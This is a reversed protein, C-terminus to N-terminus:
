FQLATRIRHDWIALDLFFTNVQFGFQQLQSCADLPQRFNLTLFQADDWEDEIMCHNHFSLSQLSPGLQAIVALTTRPYGDIANWTLHLAKLRCCCFLERLSVDVNDPLTRDLFATLNELPLRNTGAMKLLFVDARLCNWLTLNTISNVRVVLAIQSFLEGLNFGDL